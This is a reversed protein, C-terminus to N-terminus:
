SDDKYASWIGLGIDMEARISLCLRGNRMSQELHRQMDKQETESLEGFLSAVFDDMGSKKRRTFKLYNLGGEEGNDFTLDGMVDAEVFDVFAEAEIDDFGDDDDEGNM